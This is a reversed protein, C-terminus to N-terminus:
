SQGKGIIACYLASSCHVVTCWLVDGHVVMCWQAGSHVVTYWWAGGHVVMCWRAGCYVMTCWRAGSHVLEEWQAAATSHVSYHGPKGSFRIIKSGLAWPLAGAMAHHLPETSLPTDYGPATGSSRVPGAAVLGAAVPPWWVPPWRCCSAAGECPQLLQM